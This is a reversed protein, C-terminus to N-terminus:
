YAHRDIFILMLTRLIIQADLSFSWNDIYHCDLTVRRRLARATTMEGRCGNVQAWGTIGPKVRHRTGYRGILATLPRGEVTMGLAHPRPGVISMTGSLVNVLQPLEDLSTRRLFRGVRTVRPDGRCTQLACAKADAHMSMTRFKWMRFITGNLGVRKQRFLIPGPSDLKIALSVALLLPFALTLASIAVALDVARKGANQLADLPAPPRSLDPLDQAVAALRMARGYSPLFAVDAGASALHWLTARAEEDRGSVLVRDVRRSQVAQTIRSLASMDSLESIATCAAARLRGGTRREIDTAIVRAASASAAVVMLRDLCWGRRLLALLVGGLALRLIVIWGTAAAALVAMAAASDASPPAVSLVALLVLGFGLCATLVAGSVLHLVAGTRARGYLGTAHSALFWVATAGALESLSQHLSLGHSPRAIDLLAWTLAVVGAVDLCASIRMAHGLPFRPIVDVSNPPVELSVNRLATEDLPLRHFLM